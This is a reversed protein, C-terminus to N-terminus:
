LSVVDDIDKGLLDELQKEAKSLVIKMGRIEKLREKIIAKAEEKKEAEIESMAEDILDQMKM